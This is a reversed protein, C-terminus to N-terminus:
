KEPTVVFHLRSTLLCRSLILGIFFALPVSAKSGWKAISDATKRPVQKDILLYRASKWFAYTNIEGIASAIRLNAKECLRRMTAPSFWYLHRPIELGYWYTGFVRALISKINPVAIHAYGGPKLLLRVAQLTAVPDHVHELVFSLRILDFTEALRVTELTGCHVDLGGQRARETAAQSVEIGTTNWGFEQAQLLFSGAGCGIELLNGNPPPSCYLQWIPKKWTLLHVKTWFPKPRKRASNVQHSGYDEPYFTHMDKQAPRPNMYTLGCDSCRVVSFRGPIGHLRDCGSLFPTSSTSGCVNCAVTEWTIDRVNMM